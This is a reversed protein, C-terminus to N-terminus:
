TNKVQGFEREEDKEDREEEVADDIEEM